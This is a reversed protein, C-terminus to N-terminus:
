HIPIKIKFADPKDTTPIKEDGADSESNIIKEKSVTEQIFFNLRPKWFICIVQAFYAVRKQGDTNESENRQDKECVWFNRRVCRPVGVYMLIAPCVIKKSKRQHENHM